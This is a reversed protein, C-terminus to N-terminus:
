FIATLWSTMGHYQLVRWSLILGWTQKRVLLSAAPRSSTDAWPGVFEKVFLYQPYYINEPKAPWITETM